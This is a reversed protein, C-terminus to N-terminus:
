GYCISKKKKLRFTGINELIRRKEDGNGPHFLLHINPQVSYIEVIQARL